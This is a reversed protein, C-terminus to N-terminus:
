GRSVDWVTHREEAMDLAANHAAAVRECMVQDGVCIIQSGQKVHFKGDYPVVDWKFKNM